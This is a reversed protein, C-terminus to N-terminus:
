CCGYDCYGTRPELSRKAKRQRRIEARSPMITIGRSEEERKRKHEDGYRASQLTAHSARGELLIHLSEFRPERPAWFVATKGEKDPQNVDSGAELLVTIAAVSEARVAVHLPTRGFSDAADVAAGKDLLLKATAAHGAMAALFLATKGTKDVANVDARHDILWRIIHHVDAHEQTAAVHLATRQSRNRANVVDAVDLATEGAAWYNKLQQLDCREVLDHLPAM